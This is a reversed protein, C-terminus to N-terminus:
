VRGPQDKGKKLAEYRAGCEEKTRRLINETDREIKRAIAAEKRRQKRSKRPQGNKENKVPLAPTEPLVPIGNMSLEGRSFREMMEKEAAADAAAEREEDLRIMDMMEKSPRFIPEQFPRVGPFPAPSSKLSKEFAKREAIMRRAVSGIVPLSHAKGPVPHSRNVRRVPKEGKFMAARELMRDINVKGSHILRIKEETAKLQEALDVWRCEMALLGLDACNKNQKGELYAAHTKRFNFSVMSYLDRIGTDKLSPFSFGKQELVAKTVLYSGMRRIMKELIRCAAPYDPSYRSFTGTLTYVDELDERLVVAMEEFELPDESFCELSEAEFAANIDSANKQAKKRLTRLVEPDSLDADMLSYEM